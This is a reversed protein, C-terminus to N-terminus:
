PKKEEAAAEAMYAEVQAVLHTNETAELRLRARIDPGLARVTGGFAEEFFGPSPGQIGDLNVTVIGAEPSALLPLLVVERFEEGSFRGQSRYRGGLYPNVVGSLKLWVTPVAAANAISM